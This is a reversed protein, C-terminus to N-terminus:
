IQTIRQWIAEKGLKDIRLAHQDGIKVDRGQRGIENSCFAFFLLSAAVTYDEPCISNPKLKGGSINKKELNHVTNNTPTKTKHQSSKVQTPADQKQQTQKNRPEFHEAGAKDSLTAGLLAV